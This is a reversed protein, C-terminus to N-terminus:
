DGAGLDSYLTRLLFEDNEDSLRQVTKVIEEGRLTWKILDLPMPAASRAIEARLRQVWEGLQLLRERMREAHREAIPASQLDPCYNGLTDTAESMAIEDDIGDLLSTLEGHLEALWRLGRECPDTDLTEKLDHVRTSLGKPAIQIMATVELVVIISADNKGLFGALLFWRTGVKTRPSSFPSFIIYDAPYVAL